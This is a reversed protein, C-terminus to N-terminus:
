EENMYEHLQTFQHISMYEHLPETVLVPIVLHLHGLGGQFIIHGLSSFCVILCNGYLTVFVLIYFVACPVSLLPLWSQTLVALKKTSPIHIYSGLPCPFTFSISPLLM